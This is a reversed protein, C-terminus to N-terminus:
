DNISLIHPPEHIRNHYNHIITFRKKFYTLTTMRQTTMRQITQTNSIIKNDFIKCTQYRRQM